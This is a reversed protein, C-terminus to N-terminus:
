GVKWRCSPSYTIVSNLNKPSSGKVRSVGTLAVSSRHRECSPCCAICTVHGSFFLPVSACQHCLYCRFCQDNDVFTVNKRTKNEHVHQAAVWASKYFFVTAIINCYTLSLQAATHGQLTLLLRFHQFAEWLSTQMDSTQDRCSITGLTFM